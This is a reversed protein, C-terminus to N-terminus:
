VHELDSWHIIYLGKIPVNLPTERNFVVTHQVFSLHEPTVRFHISCHGVLVADDVLRHNRIPHGMVMVM